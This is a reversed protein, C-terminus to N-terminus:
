LLIKHLMGGWKPTMTRVFLDLACYIAQEWIYTANIVVIKWIYIYVYTYIYTYIYFIYININIYDYCVALM